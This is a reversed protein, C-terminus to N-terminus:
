KARGCICKENRHVTEHYTSEVFGNEDYIYRQVVKAHDIWGTNQCQKCWNKPDESPSDGACHDDRDINKIEM